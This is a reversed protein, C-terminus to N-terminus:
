GEKAMVRVWKKAQPKGLDGSPLEEWSVTELVAGPLLLWEDEGRGYVSLDRIERGHKVDIETMVSVTAKSNDSNDAFNKASKPNRAISTLSTLTRPPPLKKKGPADEGYREEFQEPTLRDGRYCTGAKDELKQLAAIAMAGHLVGEEFFRKMEARGQPSTLYDESKGKFKQVKMWSESNATAPNIYKYDDSTYVKVALIEAETLGYKRILDLTGQDAGLVKAPKGTKPDVVSGITNGQALAQAGPHAERLTKPSQASMPTPSPNNGAAAYADELYRAEALRRGREVMAEAKIDEVRAVKEGSWKAGKDAHRDLYTDCLGLIVALRGDAGADPAGQHDAVAQRLRSLTDEAPDEDPTSLAKDLQEPAM